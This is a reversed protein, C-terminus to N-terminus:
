PMVAAPRRPTLTVTTAPTTTTTTKTHRSCTTDRTIMPTRSSRRGEDGSNVRDRLGDGRRM